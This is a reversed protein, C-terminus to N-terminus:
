EKTSDLSASDILRAPNRVLLAHCDEKSLGLQQSLNEDSRRMTGCSGILHSRDPAWAALDEGVSINWRGIKYQGPGMGAAAMCDTVVISRQVGACRLYNRLAFFPVHVGDAIFCCTIKDAISLVRQIINDHRHLQQPCGNGLHTFVSLGQDVAARLQDLTADTHGASVRIGRRALLRTTALGPDSEPALTVLRVLGDAADLLRQMADPDAPRIADAPHAGRFGPADNLFPGEVHIGPIMKQALPDAARLQVVRQIRRRMVDIQETIITALFRAVGDAALRQCAAHLADATLEDQNFDIGAYGNVQLDVYKEGTPSPPRNM